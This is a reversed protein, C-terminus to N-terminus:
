ASCMRRRRAPRARQTRPRRGGLMAAWGFRWRGQHPPQLSQMLAVGDHLPEHPQRPDNARQARQHTRCTSLLRHPVRPGSVGGRSSHYLAENVRRVGAIQRCQRCEDGWFRDEQAQEVALHERLAAVANAGKVRRPQALQRRGVADRDHRSNHLSRQHDVLLVEAPRRGLLTLRGPHIFHTAAQNLACPGEAPTPSRYGSRLQLSRMAAM